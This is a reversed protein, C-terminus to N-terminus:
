NSTKMFRKVETTGDSFTISLIYLGEKLSTINISNTGNSNRFEIVNKGSLDNVSMSTVEKPSFVQISTSAPNPFISTYDIKSKEQSNITGSRPTMLHQFDNLDPIDIPLKEDLLLRYLSRAYGSSPYNSEAVTKLLDIDSQYIPAEITIGKLRKLNIEQVDKFYVEEQNRSPMMNLINEAKNFDRMRIAVGFLHKRWKWKRLPTLISEIFLFNNEDLGRYIAYRIWQDLIRESEFVYNSMPHSSEDAETRPDDGGANTVIETWTLVNSKVDVLSIHSTCTQPNRTDPNFGNNGDGDPDILNFIGITGECYDFQNSSAIKNYNGNNVPEQCSSASIDDFFYYNFANGAGFVNATLIDTGNNSFCNGAPSNSSGIDDPLRASLFAHNVNHLGTSINELFLSFRNDFMYLNDVNSKLSGKPYESFRLSSVLLDALQVFASAKSDRFVPDEILNTTAASYSGGYHSSVQNYVRLKRMLGRINKENGTDAIVM